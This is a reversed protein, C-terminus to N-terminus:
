CRAIRSNVPVIATVARRNQPELVGPATIVLPKTDGCASMSIRDESVGKSLLYEKIIQGRKESIMKNAATPGARDAHAEIDIKQNDNFSNWVEVIHDLGRLSQPTLETSDFHFFAYRLRPRPRATPTATSIAARRLRCAAARNLCAGKEDHTGLACSWHREHAHHAV